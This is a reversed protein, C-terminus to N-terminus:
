WKIGKFTVIPMFGENLWKPCIAFLLRDGKKGFFTGTGKKAM